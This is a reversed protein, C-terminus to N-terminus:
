LFSSHCILFSSGIVFSWHRIWQSGMTEKGDFAILEHNM